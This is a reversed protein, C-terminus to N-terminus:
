ELVALFLNRLLATLLLDLTSVGAIGVCRVGGAFGYRCFGSGSSLLKLLNGFLELFLDLLELALLFMYLGLTLVELELLDLVLLKLVLLKFDLFLGLFEFLM